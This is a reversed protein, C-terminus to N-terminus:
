IILLYHYRPLYYLLESPLRQQPFTEYFCPRDDRYYCSIQIGDPFRTQYDRSRNPTKYKVHFPCDFIFNVGPTADSFARKYYGWIHMLRDICNVKVTYPGFSAKPKSVTTVFCLITFVSSVNFIVVSLTRLNM